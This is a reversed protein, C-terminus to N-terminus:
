GVLTDASEGFAAVIELWGPEEAPLYVLALDAKSAMLATKAILSWLGEPGTGALVASTIEVSAM